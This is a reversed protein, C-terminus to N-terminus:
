RESKRLPPRAEFGQAHTECVQQANSLSEFAGFDTRQHEGFPDSIHRHFVGYWRILEMECDLSDYALYVGRASRALYGPGCRSWRLVM